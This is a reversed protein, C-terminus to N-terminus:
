LPGEQAAGQLLSQLRERIAEAGMRQSILERMGARWRNILVDRWECNSRWGDVDRRHAAQEAQVHDFIQQAMQMPDDTTLGPHLGALMDLAQQLQLLMGGNDFSCPKECDSMCPHNAVPCYDPRM